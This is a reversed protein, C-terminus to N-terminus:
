QPIGSAKDDEIRIVGTSLPVKKFQKSEPDYKKELVTNGNVLLEPYERLLTKIGQSVIVPQDQVAVDGTTPHVVRVKQTTIAEPPFTGITVVSKSIDHRYYAELGQQRMREVLEAARRKRGMWNREPIDYYTAVQVTYGPMDLNKLNWEPNGVDKGPIRISVARGFIPVGRADRYTQAFAANKDAQDRTLYRGWLMESYGDHHVVELGQWGTENRAQTLVQRAVGAHNHGRTVYLLVTWEGEEPFDQMPGSQGMSTTNFPKCGALATVMGALFVILWRGHHNQM